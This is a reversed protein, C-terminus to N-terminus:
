YGSGLGMLDRFEPLYHRSIPIQEKEFGEMILLFTDNFWPQMEKIKNLNVLYNRHTRCFGATHLLKEAEKLSIRSEIIGRSTYFATASGKESKVLTVESAPDLFLIRDNASLAIKKRPFVIEGETKQARRERAAETFRRITSEVREDRYPKLIYDFAELEFAQVAFQSFGTSFVIRATHARRGLEAATEIGTMGPMEVDLFVLDVEDHQALFDLAEKGGACEGVVATDGIEELICRLDARAPKEDDVILVRIRNDTEARM